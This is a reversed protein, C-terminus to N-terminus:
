WEDILVGVVCVMSWWFWKYCQIFKFCLKWWVEGFIM